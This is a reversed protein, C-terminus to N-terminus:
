VNRRKVANLGLLASGFLWAAAPIPIPAVDVQIAYDLSYTGAVSSQQGYLSVNFAGPSIVNTSILDATTGNTPLVSISAVNNAFTDPGALSFSSYFGTPGSVNSTAVFVSEIQTGPALNLLFSDQTDEGPLGNNCSISDCNGALSGNIINSGVGLTGVTYAFSTNFTAGGPFDPVVTESFNIPAAHSIQTSGMLLVFLILSLFKAFILKM